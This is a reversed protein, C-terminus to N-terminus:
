GDRRTQGRAHAFLADMEVQMPKEGTFGELYGPVLALRDELPEHLELAYYGVQMYYLIRARIKANQPPYGHREFMARIAEVRQSDSRDLMQRVPGSRRSWERVAFDLQPDFLGPDIFCRFLHCVSGTITEAPAACAALIVKTNTEEWRELLQDLLEQRSTFYWYFSSRSVGLREGLALVKVQEEGEAILVERALNLWDERTVKAHAAPLRETADAM